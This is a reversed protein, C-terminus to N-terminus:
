AIILRSSLRCPLIPSSEPLPLCPLFSSSETVSFVPCSLLSEHLPFVPCSLCHFIRERCNQHDPSPLGPRWIMQPRKQPRLRSVGSRPRSGDPRPKSAEPKPSTRSELIQDQALELVM